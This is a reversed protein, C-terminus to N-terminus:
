NSKFQSTMKESGLTYQAIDVIVRIRRRRFDVKLFNDIRRHMAVSVKRRASEVTRISRLRDSLKINDYNKSFLKIM